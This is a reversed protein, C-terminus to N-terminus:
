QKLQPSRLSGKFSLVIKDGDRIDGMAREFERVTPKFVDHYDTIELKLQNITSDNFYQKNLNIDGIFTADLITSDLKSDVVMKNNKVYYNLTLDNIKINPIDNTVMGYEYRLLEQYDQEARGKLDVDFGNITLNFEGEPISPDSYYDYQKVVVDSNTKVNLNDISFKGYDYANGWSLDSLTFDFNSGVQFNVPELYELKNGKYQIALDTNFDLSSNSVKFGEIKFEKSDSNHSLIFSIEDYNTFKKIIDAEASGYMKEFEPINFKVGKFTVNLNQDNYLLINPDKELEQSLHGDFAVSVEDFDLGFYSESWNSEYSLNSKELNISFSNLEEIPKDNFIKQLNDYSTKVSLEGINYELDEYSNTMKLSVDTVNIERFMPNVKIDGHNIYADVDLESEIFRTQESIIANVEDEIQNGIYINAIFGLVLITAIIGLFMLSYKKFNSSNKNANSMDSSLNNGCNSCYKEDEKVESGCSSCFPM